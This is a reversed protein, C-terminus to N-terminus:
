LQTEILDAIEAFTSGADNFEALTMSLDGREVDPNMGVNAIRRVAEPLVGPEDDYYVHMEGDGVVPLSNLTPSYLGEKVLVDCLVGLCCFKDGGANRVHLAGRAQEYEGSRLAQVWKTKIDSNM